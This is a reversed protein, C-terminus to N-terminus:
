LHRGFDMRQHLVRVILVGDDTKRYFVAHSATEVKRYGPRIDGAERGLDPFAALMRFTEHLGLVYKEAQAFGWREITTEAIAVIDADAKASLVYDPM